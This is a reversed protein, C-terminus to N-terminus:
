RSVTRGTGGPNEATQGQYVLKGRCPLSVRVGRSRVQVAGAKGDFDLGEAQLRFSELALLVYDTGFPSEIKLGRGGALPTFRPTPQDKLLPYLVASVPQDVPAKLHLAFQTREPSEFGSAGSRRTASPAALQPQAPDLFYVVLDAEFRGKVRVPNTLAPAEATALWVRWDFPRGSLVSDRVVVYNPGLPDDDKVLMMQRHWGARQGRLYDVAGAAFEEIRGENGLDESFGDEVRSHDAAPARGYYGFDECLPQGKGWLIFSGEDYDYHQHMKGQIYYLYTERDGPFHARLVAGTDPFLQSAWAPPTAPIREDFMLHGYGQTAPYAGGIGPTRPSGHAKWTWQMNAAFAPDKDRWIRAMWGALCTPEGLYTNGIEPMHRAGKLRPDPPSSIKALWEAAKRLKPHFEWATDSLGSERLALALGILADMSVTM